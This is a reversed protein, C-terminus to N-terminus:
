KMLTMKKVDINSGAQLQILYTGSTLNSGDFTYRYNGPTQTKNVLNSIENGLIDYIKLKVVSTETISYEIKTTPNFPNPYNQKLSFKTPLTELKQIDTVSNDSWGVSGSIVGSTPPNEDTASVSLSEGSKSMFFYSVSTGGGIPIIIGNFFAFSSTISEERSRLADVTKGGPLKMSGWADVAVNYTTTQITLVNGESSYIVTQSSDFATWSKNYEIPFRYQNFPPYHKTLTISTDSGSMDTSINISGSGIITANDTSYYQYSEGTGSFGSENFAFTSYGVTNATAFTDAFPTGTPSIYNMMFTEHAVFNSFDWNNGGGLNGIDISETLTDSFSAFSKGIESISTFDSQTITIQSFLLSPFTLISVLFLLRINKM